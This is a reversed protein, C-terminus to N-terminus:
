ESENRPAPHARDETREGPVPEDAHERYPGSPWRGTTTPVVTSTSPNMLEPSIVSAWDIPMMRPAFRPVVMVACIMAKLTVRNENSRTDTPNPSVNKEFASARLVQPASTMPSPSTNKPMTSPAFMPVDTVAPSAAIPLGRSACRAASACARNLTVPTITQTGNM